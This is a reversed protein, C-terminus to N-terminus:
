RSNLKLHQKYIKSILEKDTTENATREKWESPQRKMKSITKKTTCFSKLKILDWKNIKAKIELIRPPPDYLIRSDNIDSLTKGITKELTKITEPRVKLDRIWKSNIKTYPTLFHELKIRKCTTSWNESCWKNFLNDRRWQINKGGKDFILNGYTHPSIEPSEIKNWQDINRDRHWYWVTKIVTSKYYLRFDPLNIGGTVNKKRLIAKTTQPKKYKQAFQSIIQQLETFFVTPLKIPIANFRYIAKPLISMKVINIRGIWSCPTNRWRNTNEKIEKM